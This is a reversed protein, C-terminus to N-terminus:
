VFFFVDNNNNNNMQFKQTFLFHWLFHFSINLPYFPFYSFSLLLFFFFFLSLSFFFIIIIIILHQFCIRIRNL